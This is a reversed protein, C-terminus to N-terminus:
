GPARLFLRKASGCVLRCRTATTSRSRWVDPQVFGGARGRRVPVEAPPPCGDGILPELPHAIMPDHPISGSSGQRSKGLPCRGRPTTTLIGRRRM